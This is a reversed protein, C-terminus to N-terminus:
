DLYDAYNAGRPVWIRKGTVAHRHWSGRLSSRVRQNRYASHRRSGSGRVFRKFRGFM